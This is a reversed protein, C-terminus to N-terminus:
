AEGNVFKDWPNIPDYTMVFIDPKCAYYEGKIGKIIFDGRSARMDGELTKIILAHNEGPRIVNEQKGVFGYIEDINNGLWQVADVLLPRKRFKAM